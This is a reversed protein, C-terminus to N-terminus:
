QIEVFLLACEYRKTFPQHVGGSYCGDEGYSSGILFNKKFVEWTVPSGRLPRNDRRQVHWAQAVDKIPFTELEAKHITYLGITFFIKYIEDIFEQPEEEVKDGYFTPPNMPTFDRLRSAM